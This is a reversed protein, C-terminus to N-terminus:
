YHFKYWVALGAKIFGLGMIISRFNKSKTATRLKKSIHIPIQNLIVCKEIPGKLGFKIKVTAMMGPM